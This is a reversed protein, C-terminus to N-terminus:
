RTYVPRGIMKPRTRGSFLTSSPVPKTIRNKGVKSFKM